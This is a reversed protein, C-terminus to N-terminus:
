PGNFFVIKIRKKLKCLVLTHPIIECKVKGVFIMQLLPQIGCKSVFCGAGPSWKSDDIFGCVLNCAAAAHSVNRIMVSAQFNAPAPQPFIESTGANIKM